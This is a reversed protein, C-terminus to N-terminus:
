LERCCSVGLDYSRYHSYRIYIGSPVFNGVTLPSGKKNVDVCRVYTWLANRNHNMYLRERSRAYHSLLSTAVELAHPLRYGSSSYAAVMAEQTLFEKKRSNALIKKPLLLWYAEEALPKKRDQLTLYESYYGYGRANKGKCNQSNEPFYRLALEGLKDLTFAEGDVKGPILTLLHNDRVRQGSEEDELLFPAENNLIEEIKAPLPPEKDVEVDFYYKWSQAGFAESPMCTQHRVETPPPAHDIELEEDCTSTSMHDALSAELSIPRVGVELQIDVKSAQKLLEHPKTSVHVVLAAHPFHAAPSGQSDRMRVEGDPGELTGLNVVHVFDTLLQEELAERSHYRYRKLKNIEEESRAEVYYVICDARQIISGSRKRYGWYRYGIPSPIYYVETRADHSSFRIRLISGWEMAFDEPAGGLLGLKGLYVSAVGTPSDTGPIIHLRSRVVSTNQGSLWSLYAGVSSREQGGEVPLRGRTTEAYWSGGEQDFMIREGSSAPLVLAGGAFRSPLATVAASTSMDSASQIPVIETHASTSSSSLPEGTAISFRSSSQCSSFLATSLIAPVIFFRSM